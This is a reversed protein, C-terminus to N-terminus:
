IKKALIVDMPFHLKKAVEYAVVVGGRPVALVICDQNQYKSLKEALQMGAEQRDLFFNM